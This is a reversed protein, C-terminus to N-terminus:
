LGYKKIINKAARTYSDARGHVAKTCVEAWFESVNTKAYKGYGKARKDKLFNKYMANISKSAARANPATLHQNWTAHALEHTVIHSVAKNTKTLHGSDYGHKAWAAVSQPTSGKGNFVSKSLVVMKSKMEIGNGATIHVGGTGAPLEGVKVERQRVGLVSHFRSIASKVEKYVAPNKITSLSEVKGVKGKFDFDGKKLGGKGNPNSGGSNRGM